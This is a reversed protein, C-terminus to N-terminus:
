VKKMGSTNSQDMEGRETILQNFTNGQPHHQTPCTHQIVTVSSAPQTSHQQIHQHELSGSSSKVGGSSFGIMQQPNHNYDHGPTSFRRFDTAAYAASTGLLGNESESDGGPTSATTMAMMVTTTSSVRQLQMMARDDPTSVSAVSLSRRDNDINDGTLCEESSGRRRPGGGLVFLNIRTHM